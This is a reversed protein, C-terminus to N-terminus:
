VSKQKLDRRLKEEINDKVHKFCRLHTTSTFTNCVANSLAKEGDTGVSLVNHLSSRMGVLQSCFYYYAPEKLTRHILPGIHYPSKGTRKSYFMRLPFVMPTVYFKGLDFTPDLSLVGFNHSNACNNELEQLHYDTALICLPEPAAQVCRVFADSNAAKCKIMLMALESTDGGQAGFKLHRRVDSVQQQGRPMSAANSATMMGGVEERVKNAVQRPGLQQSLEKIRKMTSERTQKYSTLGKSNGHPQVHVDHEEGTFFYQM